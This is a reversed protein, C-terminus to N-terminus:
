PTQKSSQCASHLSHGLLPIMSVKLLLLPTNQIHINSIQPLQPPFTPWANSLGPCLCPLPFCHLFKRSFRTTNHPHLLLPSSLIHLQPNLNQRTSSSPALLIQIMSVSIHLYAAFVKWVLM